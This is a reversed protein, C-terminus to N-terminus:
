ASPVLRRNPLLHFMKHYTFTYLSVVVWCCKRILSLNSDPENRNEAQKERQSIYQAGSVVDHVGQYQQKHCHNFRVLVIKETINMRALLLTIM